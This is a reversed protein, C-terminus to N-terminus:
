TATTAPPLSAMLVRRLNGGLIKELDGAKYGRKHLREAVQPIGSYDDYGVVNHTEATMGGTIEPYRRKTNNDWWALAGHGVHIDSGIGVHDVGVLDVAYEVHRTLDDLTPRRGGKTDGVFDSFASLCTVGGKEAIAKMQEDTVNRPNPRLAIANSHSFVCPKTSLAIADLSTREGAHTLDVLIGLANCDRVVQIGFHTLGRNEPELCGDGLLNRQNYTLGLIRLGLRWFVAVMHFEHGIPEAGQFGIIIAYKGERRARDIDGADEVVFASDPVRAVIWRISEMRVAASVMDDNHAAVTWNGASIDNELMHQVLGEGHGGAVLGDIVTSRKLISGVDGQSAL